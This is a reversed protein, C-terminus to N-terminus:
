ARATSGARPTRLLALVRAASAEPDRSGDALIVRPPAGSSGDAAVLGAVLAQRIAEARTWSPDDRPLGPSQMRSHKGPRADLRRVCTEVPTVVCVYARGPTAGPALVPLWPELAFPVPARLYASWIAQLIGQDVVFGGESGRLRQYLAAVTLANFLVKARDRPGPQPLAAILRAARREAPAGPLGRLILAIRALSRRAGPWDDRTLRPAFTVRPDERAMLDRCARALTTKGSGPLGFFELRPSM